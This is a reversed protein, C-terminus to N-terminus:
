ATEPHSGDPYFGLRQKFREAYLPWADPNLLRPPLGGSFITVWQEAAAKSLNYLCEKTMGAIHPTAVVNEFALLPHDPPPPEVLFVDLGAGAILGQTLAEALAAEDYIGGRATNIFYATPKMVRFQDLGFMGMTEANRPCHVSVFDSGKLVEELSVKTGGRAAIQQETLYPDCALVTMHLLGRCLEAVRTGIHGIGVIGVTKGYLDHGDMKLRDVYERRLARDMMGIKKSVSIMLGLTHEAVAEKNAGAQNCVIIGAATCADVDVVDFGSGTTCIALLNPCQEILNADGFWPARLEVRAAIQYGHARGMQRYNHAEPADYSLRVLEINSHKALMEEAVPDTWRDFYVLCAKCAQTRNTM